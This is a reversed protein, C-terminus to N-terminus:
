LNHKGRYLFLTKYILLYIIINISILMIQYKTNYIDISGFYFIILNYFIILFSSFNNALEKKKLNKKIFLFLLQHFHNNDPLTPSIRHLFKRIISFLNEFCPMWLLLIVFYPSFNGDLQYIRILLLSFVLGLLYAGNDGLYLKNFINLIFLFVIIFGFYVLALNSINLEEFLNLKILIFFISMFYGLVLGNLGDIFNSGNIVIMLCFITFSLSFLKNELILDLYHIRTSGVTIEIIFVFFCVIILQIIFRIKVSSVLNLDSLLGILFILFIFSIYLIGLNYFILSSFILVFIGGTLPIKKNGTFIQHEQGSYNLLLNNKLFLINTFYILFFIPIILLLEM